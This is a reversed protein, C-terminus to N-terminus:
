DFKVSDGVACVDEFSFDAEGVPIIRLGSKDPLFEAHWSVGLKELGHTFVIQEASFALQSADKGDQLCSDEVISSAGAKGAAGSADADGSVEAGVAVPRGFM